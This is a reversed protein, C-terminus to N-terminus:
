KVVQAGQQVHSIFYNIAGVSLFSVLFLLALALVYQIPGVPNESEVRRPDNLNRLNRSM